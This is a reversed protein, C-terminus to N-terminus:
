NRSLGVYAHAIRAGIFVATLAGAVMFPGFPIRSKRGARHVAMLAIGVVAGYGFGLFAGVALVGWGLYGLYLGLVGALKVDGLGMGSPYLLWLLAYLAFLAGAGAAARGLAGPHHDLLAAATLLVAAVPYAPLTIADPLKHTDLDIAALALGVAGLFLFAPLAWHAGIKWALAAFLLGTAFEVLPYRVSIPQACDRCRGHLLLWSLVPVNDRERIPAECGPCRSRPRVVSEGRPVRWIVVNLFSGVLLGFVGSVIIVIV